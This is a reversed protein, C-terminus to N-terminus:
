MKHFVLTMDLGAGQFVMGVWLHNIYSWRQKLFWFFYSNFSALSSSLKQSLSISSQYNTLIRGM